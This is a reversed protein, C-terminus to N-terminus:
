AAPVNEFDLSKAAAFRELNGFFAAPQEIYV